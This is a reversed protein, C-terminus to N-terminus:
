RSQHGAVFLEPPRREREELMNITQRLVGGCWLRDPKKLLGRDVTNYRGMLFPSNRKIFPCNVMTRCRVFM